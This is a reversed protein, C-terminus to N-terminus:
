QIGTKNPVPAFHTLQCTCLLQVGSVGWSFLVSAAVSFCYSTCMYLSESYLRCITCLDSAIIYKCRFSSDSLSPLLEFFYQLFIALAHAATSMHARNVKSTDLIADNMTTTPRARPKEHRNYETPNLNAQHRHVGGGDKLTTDTPNLPKTSEVAASPRKSLFFFFFFFIIVRPILFGRTLFEAQTSPPLYTHM